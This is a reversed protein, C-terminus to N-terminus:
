VLVKDLWEDSHDPCSVALNQGVFGSSSVNEKVQEASLVLRQLVLLKGFSSQSQDSDHTKLVRQPGSDLISDAFAMGSADIDAHDSSIVDLCGCSDGFFSVNEAFSVQLVILFTKNAHSSLLEPTGNVATNLLFFPSFFVFYANLASNAVHPLKSLNLAFELNQGSRLRVVLEHENVSKDFIALNHSNSSISGVISGSQM